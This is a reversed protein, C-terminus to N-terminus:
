KQTTALMGKVNSQLLAILIPYNARSGNLPEYPDNTIGYGARIVFSNTARYALGVRPAFHKKSVETGCDKPVSGIGCVLVKGTETDYREIGRDPRNPVPLYEWRLGLDLTLKPTINWRDRGYLSYLWAQIHYVDPVQFTRGRTDPLGLMFAAFSNSRSDDSVGACTGDPNVEECRQTVGRGFNFGGQAGYAGGFEAQAHNLAQHYIDTGFRINHTGKTWNFNAVYQRQPDQRYYPMFNNPVGLTDFGDIDFEPWGSEFKRSGNTGPIGLVDLGINKGLGPQESANGQRAWGFHADMLFNPTFAYTGIVTFRYTNGHGHGPNSSGGIPGGVLADGFVTPTVDDFHLVGFTGTLNLKPTAYWDVKSDVQHRAFNFPGSAFYNRGTGSLNPDPILPTIKLASPDLRAAPIINLCQPNTATNCLSYNPDGPSVSFQQRGSGDPNGTLPDYIPSSSASFDGKRM